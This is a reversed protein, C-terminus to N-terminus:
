EWSTANVSTQALVIRSCRPRNPPAATQGSKSSKQKRRKNRFCILRCSRFRVPIAQAYWCLVYVPRCQHQPSDPSPSHLRPPTPYIAKIKEVSVIDSQRRQNLDHNQDWDCSYDTISESLPYQPCVVPRTVIDFLKRSLHFHILLQNKSKFNWIRM